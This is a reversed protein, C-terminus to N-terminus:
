HNGLRDYDRTLKKIIKVQNHQKTKIGGKHTGLVMITRKSDTFEELLATLNIMHQERGFVQVGEIWIETM